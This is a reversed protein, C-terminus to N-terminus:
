GYEVDTDPPSRPFYGPDRFATAALMAFVFAVLAGSVAVLAWSM